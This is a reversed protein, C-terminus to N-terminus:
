NKIESKNLYLKCLIESKKLLVTCHFRVFKLVVILVYFIEGVVFHERIAGQDFYERM